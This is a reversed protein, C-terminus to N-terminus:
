ELFKKGITRQPSKSHIKHERTQKNWAVFDLVIKFNLFEINRRDILTTFRVIKEM